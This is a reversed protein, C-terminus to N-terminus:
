CTDPIHSLTPGRTIYTQCHTLSHVEKLSAKIVDLHRVMHSYVSKSVFPMISIAKEPDTLNFMYNLVKVKVVCWELMGLAEEKEKNADTDMTVITMIVKLLEEILQEMYERMAERWQHLRQNGFLLEVESMMGLHQVFTNDMCKSIVYVAGKM